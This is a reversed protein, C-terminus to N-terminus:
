AYGEPLYVGIVMNGDPHNLVAITSSGPILSKTPVTKDFFLGDVIAAAQILSDNPAQASM